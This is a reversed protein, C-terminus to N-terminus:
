LVYRYTYLYLVYRKMKVISINWYTASTLRLKRLRLIRDRVSDTGQPQCNTHAWGIYVCKCMSVHQYIFKLEEGPGEKSEMRSVTVNWLSRWLFSSSELLEWQRKPNFVQSIDMLVPTWDRVEGLLDLIRRHQSSHHLDCIHSPDRTATAPRLSAAIDRIRGKAQPSGYAAPAYFGFPSFFFLTLVGLYLFSLYTVGTHKGDWLSCVMQWGHLTIVKGQNWAKNKNSLATLELRLQPKIFQLLRGAKGWQESM